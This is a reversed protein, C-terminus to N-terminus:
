SIFFFPLLQRTISLLLWIAPAYTIGIVLVVLLVLGLVSIITKKRRDKMQEEEM